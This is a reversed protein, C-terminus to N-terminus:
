RACCCVVDVFFYGSFENSRILENLILAHEAPLYICICVYMVHMVNEVKKWQGKTRAFTVDFLNDIKIPRSM